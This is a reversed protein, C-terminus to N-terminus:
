EIVKPVTFFPPVPDPANKLVADAQDGETVVDDRFPARTAGVAIMPEVGDTPVANLAEVWNLIANLEGALGDLEDADVRIRALGAIRAVTDRDLSM